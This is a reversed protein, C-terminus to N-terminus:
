SFSDRTEGPPEPRHFAAARSSFRRSATRHPADEWKGGLHAAAAAAGWLAGREGLTSLRVRLKRADRPELRAGLASEVERLLVDNREALPGALVFLEPDLTRVLGAMAWSLAAAQRRVAVIADHEGANAAKVVEEPL